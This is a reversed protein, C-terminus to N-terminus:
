LFIKKFHEINLNHEISIDNISKINQLNNYSLFINLSKLDNFTNINKNEWFIVDIILDNNKKSIIIQGNNKITIYFIHKNNKNCFNIFSLEYIDSAM